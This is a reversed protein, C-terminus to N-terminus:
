RGSEGTSRMKRHPPIPASRYSQDRVSRGASDGVPSRERARLSGEPVTRQWRASAERRSGVGKSFGFCEGVVQDFMADGDATDAGGELSGALEPVRLERRMRDFAGRRVFATLRLADSPSSLLLRARVVTEVPWLGNM